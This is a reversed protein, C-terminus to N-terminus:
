KRNLVDDCLHRDDKVNPNNNLYDSAWDCGRILLNDLDMNWLIVTNDDSGTAITKGDPSFVVSDVSGSHGKLTHLEQGSLNWLKMTNDSSGTAITKGDPSFVVSLVLDSHGKLTHLEQGSLNWLKVTKDTSGSAITQGDPSFLVSWVADSHGKLTHLEQGSLNWLKVTNDESGSVITQGDPSFVVSTVVGSHGKLTHLEQGSRNWLKVTNDRSGTAITQGDPSFVVSTVVGSHGKLTHLEQGSLNWLKVTKDSSKTAITKGDPSFVVSWVADSHGKLTHLEQGSLNWLKVTKDKSDTAITKGDPSFVVSYVKGSHGKLTHLEQGSLNWLKVTNFSWTAITKGDPSFVVSNVIENGDNGKLTHLKQGFLNWLKITRDWSGTAITKGDPSFVVSLVYGNHGKLAHLEQGSLNWLKVTKDYGACAITKGDPSFMVSTVQNRYGKLTHLEQGSLNWLKVTRDWSGTAITKGDPSFVVSTVERMHGKLTHLEQGSLNWLKVTNDKSGSAITKGDPSFLVSWVADSHGKLTHLEQGSLNWLKVTNDKSGSAITKGDPSFLVSWVADSHGKLTHLEQGSLNWLKVTNDKSGSAITKGDPSFLVSWVADSHGKLTHLEQGSLNWLKVTNDKSGSAITKGDPSFLVSWVADSHGKLTHLEQGSLNWLKVTNDKSGSAITKGDPSFLVSWVADSHGKLTHLEQGSLNWLKVTNDKSGSAITQGDPSFLVSWVADSHGKLTHLEQGSLNWLRVTNDYSGTAITQGDPSFVVSTVVGSHGKLTHLEQGSRNWLKVTNDRSGTAITQGDPSFVVSWVADSHGKLTHLEQGSLNWLKVTNDRGDTAITKGDPSFKVYSGELRNHEKVGYVVQQLAVIAKTRNELDVTDGNKKVNIGVKLGSLLADLEYNSAFLNETTLSQVSVEANIRRNEAQGWQWFAFGLLILATVLGSILANTNRRRRRERESQEKSRQQLSASIFDLEQPTMEKTRKHLWEQAVGLPVGRLLAGSDYNSNKWELVAVKLREQWLRFQRNANMWERLTLWERILAEHVVEVTDEGSKEDRGTVVLRAPYGALYSVLGWNEDGVEARTAIRRTDETGEGPRVLQVFIRPVIHRQTEDLRQYVEEAHNALAKKVGGIKDYAQHTLKRKQQLSWLRTLAFELLPLNGPENGVDDLIRQTLQADKQVVMKQAPQEIARLLEERNMSSLFKPTFQELADRFPRYGLMFGSFDARLSFVLTFNDLNVAALLADVFREIVEKNQCLTYLEEFQDAFLLLRKDTQRENLRSIVTALTIKGLEMDAALGVAERLQATEGTEPELLRVLVSALQYFPKYGPRFSEILWNGAIRLQPFLGAYVVSSKGSGSPGIVGVLPQQNVAEILGNVFTERGFFFAADNETFAALGVYPNPPVIDFLPQVVGIQDKKLLVPTQQELYNMLVSRGLKYAFEIQQGAALTDYFAVSFAIAAKDGITRNMGIVYNVHQSIAKAQVESYCANLLVCEVGKTAFLEFMSSLADANLFAPEDAENELVIGDVGAGHGSFHVIQPQYDLIARYFDRQRVAWKQELKFQERKNGRKLGEDIERIEKDLQLRSTGAPNAALILITKVYRNNDDDPQPSNM